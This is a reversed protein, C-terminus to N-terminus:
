RKIVFNIIKKPIYVEKIRIGILKESLVKEAYAIVEEKTSDSSVSIMRKTKGNLQVAIQLMDDLMAEEDAVPWQQELVSTIHGYQEWIEETIYPAFPALLIIYIELIEKDIGGQKKLLDAIGNNYQMFGSIVTKLRMEEFRHTIDYILKNRLKVSEKTPLKKEDKCEIAQKWLKNLFRYVGELVEDEWKTEQGLTGTFLKYLRLCDWGYDRVLAAPYEENEYVNPLMYLCPCKSIICENIAFCNSLWKKRWKRELARYNYPTTM